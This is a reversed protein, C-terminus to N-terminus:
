YVVMFSLKSCKEVIQRLQSLKLICTVPFTDLIKDEDYLVLHGPSHYRAPSGKGPKRKSRIFLPTELKQKDLTVTHTPTTVQFPKLFYIEAPADRNVVLPKQRVVNDHTSHRTCTLKDTDPLVRQVHPLLVASLYQEPINTYCIISLLSRIQTIDATHADCWRM